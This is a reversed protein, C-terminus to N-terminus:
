KEAEKFRRQQRRNRQYKTVERYYTSLVVFCSNETVELGKILHM